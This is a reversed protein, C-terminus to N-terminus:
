RLLILASSYLGDAGRLILRQTFCVFFVEIVLIVFVWLMSAAGTNFGLSVNVLDLGCKEFKAWDARM